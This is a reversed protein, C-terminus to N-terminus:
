RRRLAIRKLAERAGPQDPRLALARNIDEVAPGVEGLDDFRITGRNYYASALDDPDAHGAAGLEIARTLDAVARRFHSLDGTSNGKENFVLARAYYGEMAAPYHEVLAEAALLAADWRGYMRMATARDLLSDFSAAPKKGTTATPPAAPAVPALPLPVDLALAWTRVAWAAADPAVAFQGTLRGALRGAAATDLPVAADHLESPIQLKLALILVNCELPHDPCADRLLGEFRRAERCATTGWRRVLERLRHGVVDNM